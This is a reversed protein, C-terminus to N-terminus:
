HNPAIAFYIAPGNLRQAKKPLTKRKAEVLNNIEQLLWEVWCEIPTYMGSGEYGVYGIPDDDLIYLM